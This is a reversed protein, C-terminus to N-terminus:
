FSPRTIFRFFETIIRECSISNRPIAIVEFFHGDSKWLLFQLFHFKSKELYSITDIKCSAFTNPYRVDVIWAARGAVASELRSLFYNRKTKLLLCIVIVIIYLMYCCVCKCCVYKFFQFLSFSIYMYCDCTYLQQLM